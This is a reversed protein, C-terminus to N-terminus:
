VCVGLVSVRVGLFRNFTMRSWSWSRSSWINSIVVRWGAVWMWGDMWGDMSWQSMTMILEMVFERSVLNMRGRLWPPPPALQLMIPHNLSRLWYLTWWGDPCGIWNWTVSSKNVSESESEREIRVGSGSRSFSDVWEISDLCSECVVDCGDIRDENWRLRDDCRNNTRCADDAWSEDIWGGAGGGWRRPYVLRALRIWFSVSRDIM